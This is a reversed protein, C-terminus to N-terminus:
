YTIEKVEDASFDNELENGDEDTVTFEDCDISIRTLVWGFQSDYPAYLGPNIEEYRYSPYASFSLTCLYDGVEVEAEGSVTDPDRYDPDWQGEVASEIQELLKGYIEQTVNFM